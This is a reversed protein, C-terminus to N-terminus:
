PNLTPLHPQASSFPCILDADGWAGAGLGWGRILLSRGKIKHVLADVFLVYGTWVIPTFWRGVIQNGSFLLAEALFIILLGAQGLM